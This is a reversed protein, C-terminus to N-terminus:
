KIGKKTVHWVPDKCLGCDAGEFMKGAKADGKLRWDLWAVGVAGFRGGGEQMYTGGHGSNIWGHFIPVNNIRNFDDDANAQAIDQPGGSIYAIPAHIKALGAKSASSMPAGPPGAGDPFAGSNWIISTKVRPDASNAIAQLGGCSQGMVAIEDPNLKGFYPSGARKTEAVAWDMATKLDGDKTLPPPIVAPAGAAQGPGPRAFDPLPVDKGGSAIILYGHSAIETLFTQFSLGANSCGGNGWAIIPLRKGGTFPKLDKPRYITHTALSPNAEITVAYPGPPTPVPPPADKPPVPSASPVVAQAMAATTMALTVLATAALKSTNM